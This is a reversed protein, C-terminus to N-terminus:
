VVTKWLSYPVCIGHLYYRNVPKGFEPYIVWAPGTVCHMVGNVYHRQEILDEGFYDEWAAGDLRHHIKEDVDSYYSIHKYDGDHIEVRISTNTNSM